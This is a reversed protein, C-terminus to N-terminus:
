SEWRKLRAEYRQPTMVMVEQSGIKQKKYYFEVRWNGFRLKQRAPFTYAAVQRQCYRTTASQTAVVRNDPSFWKITIPIERNGPMFNVLYLIGFSNGNKGPIGSAGDTFMRHKVLNAEIESLGAFADSLKGKKTFPQRVLGFHEIQLGWIKVAKEDGNKTEEQDIAATASKIEEEAQRRSLELMKRLEEQDVNKAKDLNRANRMSAGSLKVKFLNSRNFDAENFNADAVRAETLNADTLNVWRLDAGNLNAKTLDAKTLDANSLDVYRLDAYALTANTL